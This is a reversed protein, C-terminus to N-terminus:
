FELARSVEELKDRRTRTYGATTEPRSHRAFTQVARLDGLTDNATTLATHRLVHTSFNAIDARDALQRTWHWITAPSVFARKRGRGPFVFGESRLDRLEVRLVSHVPLTATKSNKGLVTYWELRDDFREWESVAIETRRLALYLGLLVATGKPYGADLAVDLLRRTQDPELPRAVMEPASPVSVAKAPPSIRDISEWYHKFAAAAQRRVSYTFKLCCRTYEVIETARASGLSSGRKLFWADAKRVHALYIETTRPNLGVSGYLYDVYDAYSM